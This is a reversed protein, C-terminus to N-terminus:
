SQTETSTRLSLPCTEHTRRTFLHPWSHSYSICVKNHHLLMKFREFFYVQKAEEEDLEAYAEAAEYGFKDFNEDATLLVSTPAKATQYGQENGWEKNLHIGPEGELHLFSFAFGSYTTGFDIAVVAMYSPPDFFAAMVKAVEGACSHFLHVSFENNILDGHQGHIIGLPWNEEQFSWVQYWIQDRTKSRFFRIFLDLKETFHYLTSWM